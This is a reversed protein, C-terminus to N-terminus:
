VRAEGFDFAQRLRVLMEAFFTQSTLIEIKFNQIKNWRFKEWLCCAPSRQGACLEWGVQPAKTPYSSRHQSVAPSKPECGVPQEVSATLRFILKTAIPSSWCHPMMQLMYSNFFKWTRRALKCNKQGCCIEHVEGSAECACGESPKWRGGYSSVQLVESWVKCRRSWGSLINYLKLWKQALFTEWKQKIELLSGAEFSKKCWKVIKSNKDIVIKRRKKQYVILKEM